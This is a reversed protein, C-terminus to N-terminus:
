LIETHSTNRQPHFLQYGTVSLERSMKTMRHMSNTQNLQVVLKMGVFFVGFFQVKSALPLLQEFIGQERDGLASRVLRNHQGIAALVSCAFYANQLSPNVCGCMWLLISAIALIKRRLVVLFQSIHIPMPMPMSIRDTLSEFLAFFVRCRLVHMTAHFTVNELEIYAYMACPLGHHYGPLRRM